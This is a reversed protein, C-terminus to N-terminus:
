AALEHPFTCHRVLKTDELAQCFLTKEMSASWLSLISNFGPGLLLDCLENTTFSHDEPIGNWHEKLKVVGRESLFEASM